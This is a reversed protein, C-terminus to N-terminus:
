KVLKKYTKDMLIAFTPATLMIVTVSVALVITGAEIMGSNNLSIGLDLLGGGIAAQVTAKPMYSITIFVREKVNFKTKLLSLNVGISRFILSVLILLLSPLFYLSLYEIKLSAGVLEFLIIEALVWMDNCKSMLDKATNLDKLRIVIALTIISLLSSYSIIGDLAEELYVLLFATGFMIILNNIVKDSRKFIFSLILGVVIGMVVGSVISIPINLFTVFSISGTLRMNLFVTYFVIMIIDDISAAATILEPIGKESGVKEDMMKNMFPVVVAPSVAGVVSGLLFSEVYSLGFILHALFGILVMEFCAPVFSMLIASKGVSKLKNIDLGLGAKVLIIVLAIKRLSASINLINTNILNFYGIAIGFFLYGVLQPLKIKKFVFSIVAGGILMIALSNFFSINM